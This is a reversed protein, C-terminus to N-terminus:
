TGGPGGGVQRQGKDLGAGAEDGRGARTALPEPGRTLWDDGREVRHPRRKTSDRLRARVRVSAVHGAVVGQARDRHKEVCM